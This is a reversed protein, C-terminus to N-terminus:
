LNYALLHINLFRKQAELAAKRQPRARVNYNAGLKVNHSEAEISDAGRELHRLNCVPFTGEGHKTRLRASRIEGDDSRFLEVLRGLRVNKGDKILVADNIKPLIISKTLHAGKQRIAHKTALYHLYESFWTKRVQALTSKLKVSMVNLSKNNIKFEPDSLDIDSIDHTFHHLDRGFILSNPTIPVLDINDGDMICLPRENYVSEAYCMVTLLQDVSLNKNKISKRIVSKIIGISREVYGNFHPSGIPTWKWVVGKQFMFNELFSDHALSKLEKEYGKFNSGHDSILMCPVGRRSSFRTFANAFSESSADPAMEIHGGGTAVCAFIIFYVKTVTNGGDPSVWEHGTMDVACVQFPSDVQFRYEPLAPAGPVHYRSGREHKCNECKSIFQKLPVSIKPVWFKKRLFARTSNLGLHGAGLHAQKIVLNTFSNVAPLLIPFKQDYTLNNANALSTRVRIINDKDLCLHLDFCISPPSVKETRMFIKGKRSNLDVGNLKILFDYVDSYVSHQTFKIWEKEAEAVCNVVNSMKTTAVYLESLDDFKSIDPFSGKVIQVGCFIPIADNKAVPLIYQHWQDAHSLIDPGSRWLSSRIPNNSPKTLLDAPNNLGLIYHIKINHDILKKKIEDVRSRIFLEKQPKNGVVWQLSTTSDSWLHLSIPNFYKSVATLVFKLFRAGLSLACLEKRPITFHAMKIPCIKAKSSYMFRRDQSVFYIVVGLSKESADCFGHISINNCEEFGIWRPIPVTLADKLMLVIEKWETQVDVPLMQDWSFDYEWSLQVLLRGLITLPALFGCPDYLRAIDSLISRKTILVIEFNVGSIFWLDKEYDWQMGLIKLVASKTFIGLEKLKLNIDPVNSAFDHLPMGAETFIKTINNVAPLVAQKESLLIFLNDVYLELSENFSNHSNQLIDAVTANLLFPSSSAGFIVSKFRFILIESNPDKWNKRSLFCTYNRDLVRLVMRMFAKSIDTTLLYKKLRLRLMVELINPTMQSGLYMRDNLSMKGKSHMSADFVRRVPTTANVDTKYVPFHNVFHKVVSPDNLENQPVLEVFDNKVENNHVSEYQALKTPNKDLSSMMSQFRSKVLGFNSGLEEQSPEINDIWPFGVVPQGEPNYSLKSNFIRYASKDDEERSNLRIGLSEYSNLEKAIDWINCASVEEDKEIIPLIRHSTNLVTIINNSMSPRSVSGPINGSLLVKGHQTFNVWMGKVLRPLRTPSVIKRYYDGGVLIDTTVLDTKTNLFRWDAVQWGAKVLKKAFTAAGSMFINNLKKVVMCEMIVPHKDFPLGIKVEIIDYAENVVSRQGYGLLSARETRLVPLNLRDACERSILTRQAGDDALISVNRRVIPINLCSKSNCVFVATQLAVSRQTKSTISGISESKNSSLRITSDINVPCLDIAHPEKKSCFALKCVGTKQSCVGPHTVRFCIDCPKIGNKSTFARKRSDISPFKSCLRSDHIGDCLKCKNPVKSKDKNAFKWRVSAKSSSLKKAKPSVSNDIVNLVQSPNQSNNLSDDQGKQKSKQQPYTVGNNLTNLRLVAENSNEFIEALTPFTKKCLNMLENKLNSPLRKFVIHRIVEGGSGAFCDIQFTSKLESLYNRLITLGSLTKLMSKDNSDFKIEAIKDLLGEKILPKNLYSRELVKIALDYNENSLTFSKISEFAWGKVSLQLWYLKSKKDVCNMTFIDFKTMFSQYFLYDDITGKPTFFPQAPKPAQSMTKNVGLQKVLQSFHDGTVIPVDVKPNLDQDEILKNVDEIVVEFSDITSNVKALEAQFANQFESDGQMAPAAKLIYATFMKNAKDFIDEELRYKTELRRFQVLRLNSRDLKNIQSIMQGMTLLTNQRHQVVKAADKHEMVEEFTMTIPAMKVLIEIIVCYLFLYNRAALVRIAHPM